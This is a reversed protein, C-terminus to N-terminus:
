ILCPKFPLHPFKQLTRLAHSAGAWALSASRYSLSANRAFFLGVGVIGAWVMTRNRLAHRDSIAAFLKAGTGGSHPKIQHKAVCTDHHRNARFWEYILVGGAVAVNLSQVKGAM